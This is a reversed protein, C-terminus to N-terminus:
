AGEGAPARSLCEHLAKRIRSLTTHISDAPRGLREAIAQVRLGERYRLQLITRAFDQLRGLCTNLRQLRLDPYADPSTALDEIDQLTRDSLRLSRRSSDRGHRLVENRVFAFAWARFNTGPQFAGIKHFIQLAVTQLLDDADEPPVGMSLAYALLDGQLPMFQRVFEEQSAM